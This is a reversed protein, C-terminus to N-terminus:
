AVRFGELVTEVLEDANEDTLEPTGRMLYSRILEKYAGEFVSAAM